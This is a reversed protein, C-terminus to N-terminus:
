RRNLKKSIPETDTGGLTKGQEGFYDAITPTGSSQVSGGGYYKKPVKGGQALFPIGEWTDVVDSGNESEEQTKSGFIQPLEGGMSSFFPLLKLMTDFEQKREGLFTEWYPIDAEEQMETLEDGYDEAKGQTWPTELSSIAEPDGYDITDLDYGLMDSLKRMWKPAKKKDSEALKKDIWPNRLLGWILRRGKERDGKKEMGGLYTDQQEEIGEALTKIDGAEQGELFIDGYWGM